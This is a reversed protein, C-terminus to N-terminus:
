CCQIWNGRSLSTFLTELEAAELDERRYLRELAANM